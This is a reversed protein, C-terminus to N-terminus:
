RSKLRGPRRPGQPAPTYLVKVTFRSESPEVSVRLNIPIFEFSKLSSLMVFECEAGKEARRFGNEFLGWYLSSCSSCVSEKM